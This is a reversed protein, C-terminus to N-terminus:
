KKTKVKEWNADAKPKLKAEGASLWKKRADNTFSDYFLILQGNKTLTYSEPDVKVKRGKAALAYGCWGGYLPAYKESNGKFKDLNGQSSFRYKAGKYEYTYKSNGKQVKNEFYSVVDYGEAIYGDQHNYDIKQASLSVCFLLALIIQIKM